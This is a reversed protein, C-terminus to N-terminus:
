THHSTNAKTAMILDVIGNEFNDSVAVINPHPPIDTKVLTTTIVATRMGARAAAEIGSLSDEFVICEAPQRGLRAAAELFCDPAPKSNVVDEASVITEFFHRMQLGDLVFDVNPRYASTAVALQIGRSQAKQLFLILGAVPKLDPRYLERYTAEKEEALREIEDDALHEGLFLRFIEPNRKGSADQHFREPTMPVGQRALVEVWIDVHLSMNDIMTGDMDFVFATNPQTM